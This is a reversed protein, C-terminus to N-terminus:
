EKTRGRGLPLAATRSVPSEMVFPWRRVKGTQYWQGTARDGYEPSFAGLSGLWQAQCKGLSPSLEPDALGM